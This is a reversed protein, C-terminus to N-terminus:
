DTPVPNSADLVLEGVGSRVTVDGETTAATITMGTADERVILEERGVPTGRLFITYGTPKAAAPATQAVAPGALLLTLACTFYLFRM